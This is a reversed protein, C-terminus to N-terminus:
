LATEPVPVYPEGRFRAENAFKGACDGRDHKCGPWLTFSDGAAPPSPLPYSLDLTVSDSQVRIARRTGANVGSVFRLEGASYDVAGLAGAAVKVANRTAGVATTLTVQHAARSVGCGADYLTRDCGPQYVARPIPANLRSLDSKVTLKIDEDIDVNEIAGAFRQIAGALPAGPTAAHGRWVELRAGDLAGNRVASVFPIGLLLHELTAFITVGLTDVELGRVIRTRGRQFFPGAQWTYGGWSVAAGHAAYRVISDDIFRFLYLDCAWFLRSALLAAHEPSTAIM